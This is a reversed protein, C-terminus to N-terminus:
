QAVFNIGPGLFVWVEQCGAVVEQSIAVHLGFGKYQEAYEEPTMKRWVKREIHVWWDHDVCASAYASSPPFVIHTWLEGDVDIIVAGLTVEVVKGERGCRGVYARDGVKWEKAM